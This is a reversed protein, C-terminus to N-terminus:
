LEDIMTRLREIVRERIEAGGDPLDLLRQFRLGQFALVAIMAAPADQTDTLIRELDCTLETRLPDLLRPDTAAAALIAM